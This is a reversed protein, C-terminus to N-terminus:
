TRTASGASNTWRPRQWARRSCRGSPSARKSAGCSGSTAWWCLGRWRWVSRLGCCRGRRRSIEFGPVRGIMTPRLAFGSKRLRHALENRYFAGILKESRRLLGIEASRWQGGDRTMNAIVCHTHLQPDNNRSTVHRFTAAVLAPANVQVSRREKWRRTRLLRTEIFALTARVAADHARMARAAGRGGLLAELSVSKPASLTIDVGPRHEHEGDRLRGLRIDTGPVYGQLVRRFEGPEVHGRLGLAAAGSGRWRSAERHEDDRRAYYNEGGAGSLSGPDDNAPLNPALGKRRFYHVTSSASTLNVVTAVM